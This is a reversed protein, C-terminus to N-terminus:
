IKRKKPISPDTKNMFSRINSKQNTLKNKCLYLLFRIKLM